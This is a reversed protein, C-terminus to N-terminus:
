FEYFLAFQIQRAPRTSGIRGFATSAMNTNASGWQTHNFINFAEMRFELQHSEKLRFSKGLTMNWNNIGPQNIENQSSRGWRGFEPQVFCSRNFWDFRDRPADDLKCDPVRDPLQNGVGTGGNDSTTVTASAGTSFETIGSLIWGGLLTDALGSLAQAKGQGFPLKYSWGSIFRATPTFSSRGQWIDFFQYHANGRDSGILSQSSTLNKAWTFNAMFALGNWERNRVGFTASNYKAWGWPVWSQINGWGPLRRRQQFPVNALDGQPLAAANLEVFQSNHITHSGVYDLHLSWFPNLRHQVSLSWQYVAPSPYEGVGSFGNKPLLIRASVPPNAFAGPVSGLQPLPFQERVLIPPLQEARSITQRATRTNPPAGGQIDSLQNTNINGAYFIGGAARIVTDPTLTFSFGVRPAFNLDSTTYGERTMGPRLAGKRGYDTAPDLIDFPNLLAHVLSGDGSFDFTAANNRPLLWPQWKEYRLGLNLTWRSHIPWTDQFYFGYYRQHGHWTAARLELNTQDAAGLLFDAFPTGGLPLGAAARAAECASNGLPCARSFTNEFFLSGKDSSQNQFYLRRETIHAGFKFSHVGRTFSFDDKVQYTNQTPDWVFLESDAIRFDVNSRIGPSGGLPSTNKLGMQGSIDPINSIPRGIGWKPRTYSVSLDNIMTPKLIRSWNVVASHTSSPTNEGELPPLLDTRRANREAFTYRGYINNNTDRAWDIRVTHQNEDSETRMLGSFQPVEDIITNPLPTFPLLVQIAPDLLHDPIKNNPFPRRLGTVSDFDYPNYIVPTPGLGGGPRLPRYNSFDGKRLEATPVLANGQVAERLRSGEYNAFFHLRDRVLPGGFSGGFKNRKYEPLDRGALNTFFGNADLADNRHQWFLEGHFENTGSKTIVNVANSGYGFEANASATQLRLEKITSSSQITVTHNYLAIQTNAGDISVNSGSDREGAAFVGSAEFSGAANVRRLAHQGFSMNGMSLYMPSTNPALALLDFFNRSEIPLSEVLNQDITTALEATTKNILEEGAASVTVQESLDGIELVFNVQAPIAVLVERDRIVGTKFGTLSATITYTGPRLAQFSYYGSENTVTERTVGTEQNRITVEVGPLVAGTRDKVTGTIATTTQVQGWAAPGALLFLACFLKTRQM